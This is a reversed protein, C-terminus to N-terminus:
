GRVLRVQMAEFFGPSVFDTTAEIQESPPFPPRDELTFTGSSPTDSLFLDSIVGAGQVGPLARVRQLLRDYFERLQPGQAFRTRSANVRLTLVNETRFGADMGR